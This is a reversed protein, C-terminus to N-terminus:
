RAEAAPHLGSRSESEALPGREIEAPDSVPGSHWACHVYWLGWYLLCATGASVLRSYGDETRMLGYVLWPQRGLEATMWGATNAIYPFARFADSGLADLPTFCGETMASVVRGGHGRRLVDSVVM